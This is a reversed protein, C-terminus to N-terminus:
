RSRRCRRIRCVKASLDKLPDCLDSGVNAFFETKAFEAQEAIHRAKNIEEFLFISHLTNSIATRLDEYVNGDCDSYATIIYGLAQNAM